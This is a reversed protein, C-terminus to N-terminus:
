SCIPEFSLALTLWVEREEEEGGLERREKELPLKGRPEREGDKQM